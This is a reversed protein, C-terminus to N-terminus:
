LKLQSTSCLYEKLLGKACDSCKGCTIGVNLSERLDEMSCAGSNAAHKIERDTVQHCICIYM